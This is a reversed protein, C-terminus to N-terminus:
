RMGLRKWIVTLSVLSVVAALIVWFSPAVAMGTAGILWNAVLPTFGGFIAVGINYGVAQGTARTETPFIMAILSAMPGFYAGKLAALLAVVVLLVIITPVGVMLAFAPYILVLVVLAAPIMLRLRGQKDALHGSLPTVVILVVGSVILSAFSSAAPLHLEKVSFTPIYTIMYNVCTTVALAGIALLVLLKQDRLLTRVPVPREKAVIAAQAEASEPMHRRIYLGAPGVLLGVVFPIRFGWSDLQADSLSSTLATGILGALLTSMSQSTFQWSAAYGRRKPLHEVMLATASGYEGGAAFGQILRAVLIGIPAVIGIAAYTPMVVILLTGIMMMILTLTLAPKRGARDAYGGLVLAGIPRILFSVAFTGLALTLAFAPDKNTFYARAIYDAFVAYSSIDYWELANGISAAAIIRGAGAKKEGASAPTSAPPTM